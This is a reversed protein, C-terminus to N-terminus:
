CSIDLQCLVVLSIKNSPCSPFRVGVDETYPFREAVLSTAWTVGYFALVPNAGTYLPKASRQRVAQSGPWM